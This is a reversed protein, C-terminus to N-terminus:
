IFMVPAKPESCHQKLIARREEIRPHNFLRAAADCNKVCACCMVCNDAETPVKEAVAVVGTPCVKACQGCLTCTEHDTEPAIGGLPVRVKYPVAGDIEPPDLNGSAIKAAVQLGFQEAMMLDPANPRGAAIPCQPTSYSHEGIFAGAAIVDFGLSVAIDCLEVLADEFERNGYLAVLVCPLGKATITRMRQLCLEPVRGAYVPIGIVAVGDTLVSEFCSNPLTVDYHFVSKAGLGRAISTITKQTTGTPSFYILHATHTM